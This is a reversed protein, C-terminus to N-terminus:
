PFPDSNVCVSVLGYKRAYEAVQHSREPVAWAEPHYIARNPPPQGPKIAQRCEDLNPYPKKVLAEEYLQHSQESSSQKPLGEESEEELEDQPGEWPEEELLKEVLKNVIEEPLLKMQDETLAEVLIGASAKTQQEFLEVPLQDIIDTPLKALLDTFSKRFQDSSLGNSPEGLSVDPREKIIGSLLERLEKLAKGVNEPLRAEPLGKPPEKSPGQSADEPQKGCLRGFMHFCRVPERKHVTDTLLDTSSRQSEFTDFPVAAVSHGLCIWLVVCTLFYNWFCSNSKSGVLM